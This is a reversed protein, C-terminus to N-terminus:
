SSTSVLVFGNASWHCAETHGPTAGLVQLAVHNSSWEETNMHCLVANSIVYGQRVTSELTVKYVKTDPVSHLFSVLYPFQLFHLSTYWHDNENELEVKVIKFQGQLVDTDESPVFTSSVVKLGTFPVSRLSDRYHLSQALLETIDEISAACVATEGSLRDQSSTECIHATARMADAMTSDNPIHLQRLLRPLNDVSLRGLGGTLLHRPLFTGHSTAASEAFESAPVKLSPERLMKESFWSFRQAKISAAGASHGHGIFPCTHYAAATASPQVAQMSCRLGASKCFSPPLQGKDISRRFGDIQSLSLPSVLRGLGEPLAFLKSGWMSAVQM